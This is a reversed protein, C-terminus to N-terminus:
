ASMREPARWVAEAHRAIASDCLMKLRDFQAAMAAHESVGSARLREAYHGLKHACIALTEVSPGTGHNRLTRIYGESRGLWARCVEPTNAAAGSGILEDRIHELLKVSM